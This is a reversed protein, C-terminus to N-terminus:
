YSEKRGLFGFVMLLSLPVLRRLTRRWSTQFDIQRVLTKLKDQDVVNSLSTLVVKVKELSLEVNTTKRTDVIVCLDDDCFKQVEHTLDNLKANVTLFRERFADLSRFYANRKAADFVEQWDGVGNGLPRAEKQLREVLRDVIPIEREAENPSRPAYTRDLTAEVPDPAYGAALWASYQQFDANRSNPLSLRGM